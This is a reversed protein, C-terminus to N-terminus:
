RTPRLPASAMFAYQLTGALLRARLNYLLDRALVRRNVPNKHFLLKEMCGGGLAALLKAAREKQQVAPPPKRRM